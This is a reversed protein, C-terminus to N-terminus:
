PQAGAPTAALAPRRLAEIQSALLDRRLPGVHKDRIIGAADIFYTEPVGAVGYDVAVSGQPDVLQPFSSGLQKLFALANEETDEFVLGLFQVESGFTHQGWEVVPHDARCPGCWSAWVNIVVPKGRLQSLSIEEGTGLTRLRFDPAPKGKLLFPVARTDKGFGSALAAMLGLMLVGFVAMLGWRKM